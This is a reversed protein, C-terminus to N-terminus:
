KRRRCRELISLSHEHVQRFFKNEQTSEDPNFNIAKVNMEDLYHKVDSIQADSLSSLYAEGLRRLVVNELKLMELQKEIRNDSM